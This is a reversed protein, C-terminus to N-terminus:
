IQNNNIRNQHLRYQTIKKKIESSSLTAISNKRNKGTQKQKTIQQQQKTKKLWTKKKNTKKRYKDKKKM